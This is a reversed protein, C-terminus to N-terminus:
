RSWSFHGSTPSSFKAPGNQMAPSTSFHGSVPSSYKAQDQGKEIESAPSVSFRGSTPTVRDPVRQIFTTPAASAPKTSKQLINDLNYISDQRLDNTEFDPDEEDMWGQDFKTYDREPRYNADDDYQSQWPIYEESVLPTNQELVNPWSVVTPPERVNEHLLWKLSDPLVPVRDMDYTEIIEDDPDVSLIHQLGEIIHGISTQKMYATHFQAVLTRILSPITVLEDERDQKFYKKNRGDIWDVIWSIRGYDALHRPGDDYVTTNLWKEIEIKRDARAYGFDWLVFQQGTNPVNYLKGNIRYQFFSPEVTPQFKHVLVNGWHLDHHTIDLTKQLYWLASFVQFFMVIWEDEDHDVTSWHSLDGGDAYENLMIMCTLPREPDQRSFTQKLQENTFNCANECTHFAYTLPVHPCIRQLAIVNCLELLTVEAAVVSRNFSWSHPKFNRIYYRDRKSLPVMKVAVKQCAECTCQGDVGDGHLNLCALKVQGNKSPSGIFGQLKFVNAFTGNEECVNQVQKLPHQNRITMFQHIRGLLPGTNM